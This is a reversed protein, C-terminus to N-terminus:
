SRVGGDPVHELAVRALGNRVRELQGHRGVRGDEDDRLRRHGRQKGDRRPSLGPDDRLQLRERHTGGGARRLRRHDHRGRARHVRGAGLDGDDPAVDASEKFWRVENSLGNVEFAAASQGDLLDANLSSGSGDAALVIDFVDAVRAILVDVVSEDATGSTIDDGSHAHVADAFAASDMGDLLAADSAQEGVNV